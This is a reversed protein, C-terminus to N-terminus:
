VGAEVAQALERFIQLVHHAQLHQVDALVELVEGLEGVGDAHEHGKQLQVDAVVADGDQGVGQAAELLELLQFNFSVRQNGRGGVDDVLAKVDDLLEQALPHVM